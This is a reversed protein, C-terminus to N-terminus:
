VYSVETKQMHPADAFAGNQKQLLDNFDQGEPPMAIRVNRGESHWRQAAANTAALGPPDNDAAIVVERVTDPLVLKRLGGASIASWAPLGTAFMASLATEIGEAVILKLGAAGLHVAFGGVPGLTMKAPEVPAKGQGDRALYTRHVAQLAGNVDEVRALMVPWRTGSPKHLHDPLFRLADPVKCILGRSALYAVVLTDKAPLSRQWLERAFATATACSARPQPEPRPQDRPANGRM